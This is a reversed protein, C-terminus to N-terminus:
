PTSSAICSRVVAMMALGVFLSLTAYANLIPLNSTKSGGFHLHQINDGDSRFTSSMNVHKGESLRTFTSIRERCRTVATSSAVFRVLGRGGVRLAGSLADGGRFEFPSFLISPHPVRLFRGSFTDFFSSGRPLDRRETSTMLAQHPSRTMLGSGSIDSSYTSPPGGFHRLM